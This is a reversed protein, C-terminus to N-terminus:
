APLLGEETVTAKSYKLPEARPTIYVEQVRAIVVHTDPSVEAIANAVYQAQQLTDFFYLGPESGDNKIFDTPLNQRYCEFERYNKRDALYLATVRNMNFITVLFEKM